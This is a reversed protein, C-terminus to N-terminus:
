GRQLYDEIAECATAVGDDARIRRAVEAAANAYSPDGLLHELAAAARAATYRKRATTRAVGLRVVRAANDPQDFGYPVVLMPRGARLAQATTGIGGQHVIAAARPFVEAYPAYSFVAVGSPLPGAPRNGPDTGALLVARRGLKAAARASETYFAGPNIVASSGLTFIVPPPGAELFRRLEPEVGTDGEYFPFGTAVTHPPWDPQPAGMLSSFLALVLNPSHQGEFVPDRGPPLGIEARFQQLPGLWKRTVTRGWRIVAGNVRPGLPRLRALLPFPALVSPDHASFFGLPAMVTSVWRIGTKEAALQAGYTIPHTMLLDAKEIAALTEEYGRRLYPYLMKRLLFEPGHQLDMLRQMMEKDPLIHPGLPAFELGAAEIATRGHENTAVVAQHGRKQLGLAIALFPYVDGLSGWTALVIRKGM